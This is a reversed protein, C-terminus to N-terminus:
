CSQPSKAKQNTQENLKLHKLWYNYDVSLTIKHIIMYVLKDAKTKDRYIGSTACMNNPFTFGSSIFRLLFNSKHQSVDVCILLCWGGCIFYIEWIYKIRIKFYCSRQADINKHQLIKSVSSSLQYIEGKCHLKEYTRRLNISLSQIYLSVLFFTSTYGLVM